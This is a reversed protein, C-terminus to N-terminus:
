LNTQAGYTRSGQPSGGAGHLTFGNLDLTVNSASIEIGAKGPVGIVNGTLFYSGPQAIQFLALATGPTNAANIAIRPEIEGLTKFTPAIPGPPPTLTGASLMGACAVCAFASLSVFRRYVSSEKINPGNHRRM